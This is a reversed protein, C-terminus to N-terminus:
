LINESKLFFLKMFLHTSTHEFPFFFDDNLPMHDPLAFTISIQSSKSNFKRVDSFAM